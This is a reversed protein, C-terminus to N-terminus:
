RIMFEHAPIIYITQNDRSFTESQNFSIIKAEKLNFFSMAETLGAIERALNESNLEYCVQLIEKVKGKEMVVFDCEKKDQFYYIESYKSRLYLYVANELRRGNEDSFVISNESFLGLDIAYVKKPNRMQIKLSYSFKPVFQLIYTNELYSFFELITTTSRIGFVEKLKNGSVPKGINSILYVALKKLTAVERVGYRIAIDRNLIDDLLQNLIVGNGTKLYEPFGGNQLYRQLSAATNELKKFALFEEYSFPFLETSLHRGTLKTGLEKSLLTSNSGTIVIKYEDDLLQRVFLEWNELIQVEDFFLTEVRRKKIESLLRVFDDTEFGAFRTDEFNIFLTKEQNKNLLQYLLTSKGCRRVGTIILAFNEVLKLKPLNNRQLGM